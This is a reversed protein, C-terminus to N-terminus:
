SPGGTAAVLLYGLLLLVTWIMYQLYTTVRGRQLPRLALALARIRNWSRSVVAMVRDGPGAGERVGPGVRGPDGSLPIATLIPAGFSAATYQMRPTPAAYACGWTASLAQKASAFRVSRLGWLVAVVVILLAGLLGARTAPEIIEAPVGSPVPAGIVLRAVRLAFTVALAPALGIAACVVALVGMPPSLWADVAAPTGAATATPGATM